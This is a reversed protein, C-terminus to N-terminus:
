PAPGPEVVFRSVALRITATAVEDQKFLDPEISIVGDVKNGNIYLGRSPGSAVFRLEAGQEM